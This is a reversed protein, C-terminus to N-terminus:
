SQFKRKANKQTNPINYTCNRMNNLCPWEARLIKYATKKILWTIMNEKLKFKPM